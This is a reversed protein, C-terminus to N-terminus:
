MLCAVTIKTASVNKLEVEKRKLIAHHLLTSPFHWIQHDKNKMCTKTANGYAYSTPLPAPLPTAAGGGGLKTLFILYDPLKLKPTPCDRQKPKTENINRTNEKWEDSARHM